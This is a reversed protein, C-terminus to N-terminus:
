HNFKSEIYPYTRMFVWSISLVIFKTTRDIISVLIIQPISLGILSASFIYLSERIGISGPTLNLLLVISSISSYLALEAVTVSVGISKIAFLNIFINILFGLFTILIIKRLLRKNKIILDWGTVIRSIMAIYKNSAPTDLKSIFKPVGLISLYGTSLVMLGFITGLLIFVSYNKPGIIILSTIGILGNVFFVVMYNGYMTTMFDKYGFGIVKKLYVARIAMGSGVPLFFNGISTLLSVHTGQRTNMEGGFPEVVVKTLFGNLVILSLHGLMVLILFRYQVEKLVLFDAKNNTVYWLFILVFFFALVISFFQKKNKLYKNM